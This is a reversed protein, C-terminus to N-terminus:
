QNHIVVSRGVLLEKGNISKMDFDVDEEYENDEASSGIIYILRIRFNDFSVLKM